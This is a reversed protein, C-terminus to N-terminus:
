FAFGRINVAANTNGLGLAPLSLTIATNTATAPLPPDFSVVLAQAGLTAGAPVAFAYSFPGGMIGSLTANVSGALTAGSATIEFGAVYNTKGVVAALSAAATANSVNGSSAGVSNIPNFIDWFGM